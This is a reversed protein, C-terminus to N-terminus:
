LGNYIISAEQENRSNLFRIHSIACVNTQAVSNESMQVPDACEHVHPKGEALKEKSESTLSYKWLWPAIQDQFELHYANLLFSHHGSISSRDSQRFTAICFLVGKGLAGRLHVFPAHLVLVNYSIWGMLWGLVQNM